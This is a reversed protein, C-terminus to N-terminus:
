FPAEDISRIAADCVGAFECAGCARPHPRAPWAREAGIQSAVDWLRHLALRFTSEDFALDRVHCTPRFVVLRHRISATSADPRQRLGLHACATAIQLHFPDPESLKYEDHIVRGHARWVVDARAYLTLPGLSARLPLECDLGDADPPILTAAGRHLDLILGAIQDGVPALEEPTYEAAAEELLRGVLALADAAGTPREAVYAAVLRHLLTGVVLV